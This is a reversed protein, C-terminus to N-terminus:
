GRAAKCAKDIEEASPRDFSFVSRRAYEIATGPTAGGVFSLLGVKIVELFKEEEAHEQEISVIIPNILCYAFFVGLFTGVLAAAVKHGVESPPGDIAGMTIIIGLVAGVIGIGPLGDGVRTMVNIPMHAEAHHTELSTDLLQGLEDAQVSGDIILRLSEVLFELAHHDKMLKPYKSFIDSKHPDSVHSELALLGQKRALSFLQFLCTLLEMYASKGLKHGGKLAGIVSAIIKKLIKMPAMIVATGAAAGLITIYEAPHLIAGIQGGSMSYGTLVCVLMFIIGPIVM